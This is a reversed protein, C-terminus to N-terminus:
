LWRTHFTLFEVSCRTIYSILNELRRFSRAFLSVFNYVGVIEFSHEAMLSEATKNNNFSVPGAPKRLLRRSRDDRSFAIDRRPAYLEYCAYAKTVGWEASTRM